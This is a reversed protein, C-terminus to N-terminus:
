ADAYSREIAARLTAADVPKVLYEKVFPYQASEARDRENNSSTFMMVVLNPASACHPDSFRDALERLTELGSLRPMNIDLLVLYPPPPQGCERPINAPDDVFPLLDDGDELEHVYRSVGAREIARRALYRDVESDDVVFVGPIM